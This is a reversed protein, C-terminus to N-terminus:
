PTCAVRYSRAAKANSNIPPIPTTEGSVTRWQMWPGAEQLASQASHPERAHDHECTAESRDRAGRRYGM